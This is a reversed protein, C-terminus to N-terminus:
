IALNKELITDAAMDMADLKATLTSKLLAAMLVSM